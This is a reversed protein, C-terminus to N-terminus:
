NGVTKIAPFDGNAESRLFEVHDGLAAELEERIPAREARRDVGGETFGILFSPTSSLGNTRGSHAGLAVQMPLRADERDRGWQGLRLGPVQSAVDVLFGETVYDTRPEGQERISTLLYNWMRDQRGAALAATEQESFTRESYTDTKLSRYQIRVAGTRVWNEVVAPLSHEVFLKVTPCELDGYMWVTVPARPSGLVAGRQPIGDLLETVEQEIQAKSTGASIGFGLIGVVAFIAAILLIPALTTM